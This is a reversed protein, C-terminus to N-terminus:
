KREKWEGCLGDPSMGPFATAWAIVASGDPNKRGNPGGVVHPPYRRCLGNPLLYFQCTACCQAPLSPAAPAVPPAKAARTKTATTM